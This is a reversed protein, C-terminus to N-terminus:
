IQCYNENTTKVGLFDLHQFNRCIKVISIFFRLPLLIGGIPLRDRDIIKTRNQHVGSFDVIKDYRLLFTSNWERYYLWWPCNNKYIRQFIRTLATLQYLSCGENPSFEIDYV